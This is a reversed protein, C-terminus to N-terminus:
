CFEHIRGRCMACMSFFSESVPFVTMKASSPPPPTSGVGVVVFFTKNVEETVNITLVYVQLASHTSGELMHFWTSFFFINM